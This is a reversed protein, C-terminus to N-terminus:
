TMCKKLRDSRSAHVVETDMEEGILRVAPPKPDRMFHYMLLAKCLPSSIADWMLATSLLPTSIWPQNFQLANFVFSQPPLPTPHPPTHPTHSQLHTNGMLKKLFWNSEYLFFMMFSLFDLEEPWVQSWSLYMRTEHQKIRFYYRHVHQQSRPPVGLRNIQSQSITKAGTSFFPLM